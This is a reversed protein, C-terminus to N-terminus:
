YLNGYLDIYNNILIIWDLLNLKRNSYLYWILVDLFLILYFILFFIVNCILLVNIWGKIYFIM